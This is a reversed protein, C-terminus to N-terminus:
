GRIDVLDRLSCRHGVQILQILMSAMADKRNLRNQRLGNNPRMTRHQRPPSSDMAADHLQRRLVVGVVACVGIYIADPREVVEHDLLGHPQPRLPRGVVYRQHGRTLVINVEAAGGRRRGGDALNPQGLHPRSPASASAYM